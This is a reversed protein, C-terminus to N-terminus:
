QEVEWIAAPNQAQLLGRTQTLDFREDSQEICLYFHTQNREEFFPTNFIAHHLRPLGNLLLMGIVASLSAFLVTLEFTIPVFAPWSHLPRGGVNLPYHITSSFWQMGYATSGGLIGFFLTIPAVWNRRMGVAEALGDVPFPAYAEMQRYGAQHVAHAAALLEGPENFEAVLGYSAPKM